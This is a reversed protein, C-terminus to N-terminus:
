HIFCPLIKIAYLTVTVELVTNSIKNCRKLWKGTNLPQRATEETVHSLYGAHYQSEKFAFTYFLVSM